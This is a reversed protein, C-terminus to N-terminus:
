LQSQSDEEPIQEKPDIVKTGNLHNALWSPPLINPYRLRLFAFQSHQPSSSLLKRVSSDRNHLINRGCILQLPQTM